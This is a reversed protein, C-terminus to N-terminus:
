SALPSAVAQLRKKPFVLNIVGIGMLGIGSLLFASKTFPDSLFAKIKTLIETLFNGGNQAHYAAIHADLATQTSFIDGCYPCTFQTQSGWSLSLSITGGAVLSKTDSRAVGQYTASVTYSGVKMNSAQYPTTIVSTGSPGTLTVTIGLSSSSIMNGDLYTNVIVTGTDPPIAGTQLRWNTFKTNIWYHSTYPEATVLVRGNAFSLVSTKAITAPSGFLSKGSSDLINLKYNTGDDELSATYTGEGGFYKASTVWSTGDWCYSAGDKAEYTVRFMNPNQLCNAGARVISVRTAPNWDTHAMPSPFTAFDVLGLVWFNYSESSSSGGTSISTISAQFSTIGDMDIGFIWGDGIVTNGSVAIDEGSITILANGSTRRILDATSWQLGLINGGTLSLIILILGVFILIASNRSNM